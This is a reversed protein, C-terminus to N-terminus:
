FTEIFLASLVSAIIIKGVEHDVCKLASSILAGVSVYFVNDNAEHGVCNIMIM